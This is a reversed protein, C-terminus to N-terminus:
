GRKIHYRPTVIMPIGGVPRLTIRSQPFVANADVLKFQFAPLIKALVVFIEQIAFGQGICVRPGLGFPIFRGREMAEGAASLDESPLFREPLFAEPQAWLGRHRHVIWPSIVIQTGSEIFNGAVEDDHLAERGIFPVPPYLRLSENIVARTFTMAAFHAPTAPGSKFCTDMESLVRDEAEPFLALLYLVWSLANATTEHGAALFTLVNDAVAPSPLTQGTLPDRASILRDLLDSVKRKSDALRANVVRDVVSRFVGRAPRARISALSPLWVPLNLISALDIRGLTDFYIAMNAHVRARDEDLAGSFITRSVIEYTLRQFEAAVDMPGSKLSRSQWREVMIEAACSMDEFLDAVAGPNFLPAAIRRVTRWTEGEATLLGDGLAPQLRRRQQLSKRYNVTNDILVHEIGRPDSVLLIKRGGRSLDVLPVEYGPTAFAAIPNDRLLRMTKFFGPAKLHPVPAAPRIAVPRNETAIRRAMVIAAGNANAM